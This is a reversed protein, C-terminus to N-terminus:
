DMYIILFECNLPLLESKNSKPKYVDAPRDGIHTQKIEKHHVFSQAIGNNSLLQLTKGDFKYQGNIFEFGDEFQDKEFELVFTNNTSFMITADAYKCYQTRLYMPMKPKINDFSQLYLGINNESYFHKGQGFSLHKAQEFGSLILLEQIRHLLESDTFNPNTAITSGSFNKPVLINSVVVTVPLKALKDKLETIEENSYGQHAVHIYTKSCGSIFLLGVLVIFFNWKM